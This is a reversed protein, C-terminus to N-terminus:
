SNPPFLAPNESFAPFSIQKKKGRNSTKALSKEFLTGGAPPLNGGRRYFPVDFAGDGVSVDLIKSSCLPTDPPISCRTTPAAASVLPSTKRAFEVFFSPGPM